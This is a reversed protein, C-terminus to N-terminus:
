GFIAPVGDHDALQPAPGTIVDDDWVLQRLRPLDVAAAPVQNAATEKGPKVGQMSRPLVHM